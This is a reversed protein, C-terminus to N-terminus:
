IVTKYSTERYFPDEREHLGAQRCFLELAEWFPLPGSAVTVTRGGFADPSALTIPAGTRKALDVVAAALPTDKYDLQVLTPTLLRIATLRVEIRDALEAARRRTEPDSASASKRLADLAAAGLADLERG